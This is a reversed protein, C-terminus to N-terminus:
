PLAINGKQVFNQFLTCNNRFQLINSRQIRKLITDETSHRILIHRPTVCSKSVCVRYSGFDTVSGLDSVSNSTLGTSNLQVAKDRTAFKDLLAHVMLINFLHIAVRAVNPNPIRTIWCNVFLWASLCRLWRALDDKWFIGNRKSLNFHGFL